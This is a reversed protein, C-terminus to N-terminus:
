WFDMQVASRLQVLSWRIGFERCEKGVGLIRLWFGVSHHWAGSSPFLFKLFVGHGVIRFRERLIGHYDSGGGRIRGEGSLGGKPVPDVKSM